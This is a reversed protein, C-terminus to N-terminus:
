PSSSWVTTPPASSAATALLCLQDSSLWQARTRRRGLCLFLVAYESCWVRVTTELMVEGMFKGQVFMCKPFQLHQKVDTKIGQLNGFVYWKWPLIVSGLSLAVVVLSWLFTFFNTDNGMQNLWAQTEKVILQFHSICECPYLGLCVLLGCSLLLDAIVDGTGAVENGTHPM